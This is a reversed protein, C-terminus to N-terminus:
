RNEGRGPAALADLPSGSVQAASNDPACNEHKPVVPLYLIVEDEVLQAVNMTKSALVRDINDDAEVIERLSGALQLEVDVAISVLLPGLCRQCVVQLKGAVSIRLYLKGYGTVGGRLVYDLGSATSCQLQALRPLQEMGLTGRQQLAGRAFQLGDIVGAQSM